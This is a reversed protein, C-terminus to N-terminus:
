YARMIRCGPYYAYLIEHYKMGRQAKGQTGYQCLGVGHGFGRGNTFVLVDGNQVIDCNVSYLGKAIPAGCRLLALRLDDARITASAGDDGIITLRQPRGWSTTSQVRVERVPGNLAIKDYCNHLADSVVRMPVRVTPWRYRRSAACDNCVVGGALPRVIRDQPELGEAPNTVGGCCSSYYAKFVRERGPPGVVLVQGHTARVAEISRATEDAVGGYVQSRQDAYVDFDRLRGDHRMEYMVYTRAAVALANYAEQHWGPFLERALVGALYSELSVDNDVHFVHAPQGPGAPRFRLTGRYARGNVRVFSTDNAPEFTLRRGTISLNGLRWGAGDRRIELQQMPSTSADVERGDALLRYSGTSGLVASLVNDHLRVRVINRRVHPPSSAPGSPAPSSPQCSTMTLALILGALLPSVILGLVWARGSRPRLGNGLSRWTTKLWRM